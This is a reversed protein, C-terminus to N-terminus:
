SGLVAIGGQATLVVLNHAQPGWQVAVAEIAKRLPETWSKSSKNYQKVVVGGTGCAALFQGTYDWVLSSVTTGLDLSAFVNAKGLHWVTAISQGQNSSALWTGNESFALATIPTTAGQSDFTHM